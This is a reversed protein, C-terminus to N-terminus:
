KKRSRLATSPAQDPRCSRQACCLPRAQTPHVAACARSSAAAAAQSAGDLAQPIATCAGDGSFRWGHDAAGRSPHEDPVRAMRRDILKVAVPQLHRSSVSM